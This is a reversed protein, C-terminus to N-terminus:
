RDGRDGYGSKAKKKARRPRDSRQSRRTEDMDNFTGDDSRKAYFSASRGKVLDRKQPSRKAKKAARKVKKAM